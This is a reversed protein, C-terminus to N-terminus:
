QEGGPDQAADDHVTSMLDTPGVSTGGPGGLCVLAQYDVPEDPVDVSTENTHHPAFAALGVRRPLERNAHDDLASSSEGVGVAAVAVSGDSLERVLEVTAPWMTRREDDAGVGGEAEGCRAAAVIWGERAAAATEVALVEAVTGTMTRASRGSGASFQGNTGFAYRGVTLDTAALWPDAALDQYRTVDVSTTQDDPVPPTCAATVGVVVVVAAGGLVRRAARLTV